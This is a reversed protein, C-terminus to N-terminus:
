KRLYITDSYSSVFPPYFWMWFTDEYWRYRLNLGACYFINMGFICCLLWVPVNNYSLILMNGYRINLVTGLVCIHVAKFVHVIVLTCIHVSVHSPRCRNFINSMLPKIVESVFNTWLLEFYSLHTHCPFTLITQCIM